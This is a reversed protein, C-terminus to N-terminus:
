LFDDRDLPECDIIKQIGSSKIRWLFNSIMTLNGAWETSERALKKAASATCTKGLGKLESLRQRIYYDEVLFVDGDPEHIVKLAKLTWPGIGKIKSAEISSVTVDALEM